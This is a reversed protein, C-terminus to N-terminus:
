WWGGRLFGIKKVAVSASPSKELNGVKAMCFYGEWLNPEPHNGPDMVNLLYSVLCNM